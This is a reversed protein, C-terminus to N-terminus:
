CLTPCFSQNTCVMIAIALQSPQPVCVNHELWNAIHLRSHAVETDMIPFEKALRLDHLAAKDAAPLRQERDNLPVLVALSTSVNPGAMTFEGIPTSEPGVGRQRLLRASQMTAHLLMVAFVVVEEVFQRRMGDALNFLRKCELPMRSSPGDIRPPLQAAAATLEACGIVRPGERRSPGADADSQDAIAMPHLFENSLMLEGTESIFTVDVPQTVGPLGRAEDGRWAQLCRYGM